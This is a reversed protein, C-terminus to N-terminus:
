KAPQESPPPKVGKIAAFLPPFRREGDNRGIRVTEPAM